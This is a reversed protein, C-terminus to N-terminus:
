QENELEKTMKQIEEFNYYKGEIKARTRWVEIQPKRGYYKRFAKIFDEVLEHIDPMKYAEKLTLLVYYRVVISDGNTATLKVNWAGDKAPNKIRHSHCEKFALGHRDFFEQAHAYGSIM